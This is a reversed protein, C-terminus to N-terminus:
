TPCLFKEILPQRNLWLHLIDYAEAASYVVGAPNGAAWEGQIFQEQFETLRGGPAKFELSLCRGRARIMFDVHGVQITTPRDPRPHTFTLINQERKQRLLAEFIAQEKLEERRAWRGGAEAATGGHRRREEPDAIKSVIHEPLLPM